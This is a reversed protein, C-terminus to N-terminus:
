KMFTNEYKGVIDEWRYDDRIRQKAAEGLRAKEEEPMQDTYELLAKLSGEEKTWYIAGEKGVEHNFVVDYLLNVRTSGLAELLSPNTGGVEHGHLYAYAGARIHRLLTDNYVTGVFRIRADEDFHLQDELEQLFRDDETTIIVLTHDTNSAMFEKLITYYNNEPVFRGVVLYYDDAKLDNYDLWQQYEREAAEAAAGEEAVDVESGYAIFTTKPHFAAYEEQIYTEIGQNDCILLDAAKVMGRESIKWYRRVPASWKARKWEHGDPNVYLLGGLAHIRKAYARIFPGIRCAMIFFIPREIEPHRDCYRISQNLAILDYYIAKAAGIDPVPVNFCAAHNYEYRISNDSLRAVHYLIHDSQRRDTLNEVFTEFGGYSAPIGKSGIAFVHQLRTQEMADAPISDGELVRVLKDNITFTPPKQRGTKRAAEAAEPTQPLTVYSLARARKLRRRYWERALFDILIGLLVITFVLGRSILDSQQVLFLLIVVTLLLLGYNRVVAILQDLPGQELRYKHRYSLVVYLLFYLVVTILLSRINQVYNFNWLVLWGRVIGYRAIMGLAFATIYSVLDILLLKEDGPDQQESQMSRIAKHEGQVDKTFPLFLLCGFSFELLHPELIGSLATIAMLFLHYYERRRLFITQMWTMLFLFVAFILLGYCIPILIYSCDLILGQGAEGEPVLRGFLSMLSYESLVEQNIGFHNKVAGIDLILSLQREFPLVGNYFASAALMSISLYLFIPVAAIAHAVHNIRKLREMKRIRPLRCFDYVLTGCTLVLMCLCNSRSGIYRYAFLTTSGLVLLDLWAYFLGKSPRLYCYAIMLCLLHAACISSASMGFAHQLGDDTVLYPLYGHMSGWYAMLQLVIGVILGTRVIRRANLGSAGLVFFFLISIAHYGGLFHFALFLLFLVGKLLQKKRDDVRCVALFACFVGAFNCLRSVATAFEMMRGPMIGPFLTTLLFSYAYSIAFAILYLIELVRAYRNLINTFFSAFEKTKNM